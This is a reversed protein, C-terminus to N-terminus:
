VNGVAELIRKCVSVIANNFPSFTSNWICQQYCSSQQAENKHQQMTTEYSLSVSLNFNVVNITTKKVTFVVYFFSKQTRFHQFKM